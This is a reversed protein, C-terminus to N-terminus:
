SSDPTVWQPFAVNSPLAPADGTGTCRVGEPSSNAHPSTLTSNRSVTGRAPEGSRFPTISVAAPTVPAVEGM